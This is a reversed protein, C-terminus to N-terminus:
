KRFFSAVSAYPIVWKTTKKQQQQITKQLALFEICWNMNCLLLKLGKMCYKLTQGNKLM